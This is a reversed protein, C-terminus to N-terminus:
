RLDKPLAASKGSTNAQIFSRLDSKQESTLNRFQVGRRRMRILSYPDENQMEFDSIIKVRLKGLFFRHETLFINLDFIEESREGDELYCFALGGMSIDLIQGVERVPDDSAAFAEDKVLYRKEKRFEFVM